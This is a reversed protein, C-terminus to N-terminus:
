RSPRHPVREHPRAVMFYKLAAGDACAALPAGCNRCAIAVNTRVPAEVRVVKYSAGCNPCNFNDHERMNM